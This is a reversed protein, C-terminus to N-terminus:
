SQTNVRCYPALLQISTTSPDNIQTFQTTKPLEILNNNAQQPFDIFTNNYMFPTNPSLQPQTTEGRNSHNPHENLLSMTTNSLFNTNYSQPEQRQQNIPLLNYTSLENASPHPHHAHLLPPTPPQPAMRAQQEVQYGHHRPAPTFQQVECPINSINQVQNCYQGFSEISDLDASSHSRTSVVSPSQEDPSRLSSKVNGIASTSPCTGGAVGDGFLLWEEFQSDWQLPGTSSGLFSAAPPQDLDLLLQNQDGFSTDQFLEMILTSSNAETDFEITRM